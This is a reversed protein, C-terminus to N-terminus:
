YPDDSHKDQGDLGWSQFRPLWSSRDTKESELAPQPAAVETNGSETATTIEATAASHPEPGTNPSVEQQVPTNVPQIESPKSQAVPTGIPPRRIQKHLDALMLDLGHRPSQTAALQYHSRALEAGTEAAFLQLTLDRPWAIAAGTESITNGDAVQLTARLDAADTVISYGHDTLRAALLPLLNWRDDDIAIEVRSLSSWDVHPRITTQLSSCATTVLLLLLAAVLNKM